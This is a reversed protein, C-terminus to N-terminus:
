EIEDAAAAAARGLLLRPRGGSAFCGRLDAVVVVYGRPVWYAPDPGEFPTCDSLELAGVFNGSEALAGFDVPYRDVSADKGYPTVSVLVPHRTDSTDVAARGAPTRGSTPLGGPRYVNARLTTGDATRIPVDREVVIDDPLPYRTISHHRLPTPDQAPERKWSVM